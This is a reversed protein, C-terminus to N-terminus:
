EGTVGPEKWLYRTEDTMQLLSGIGDFNGSELMTASFALPLSTISCIQKIYESSRILTDPETAEGINSNNVIATVRLRSASEIDSLLMAADEASSTLPRYMSVVYLMEYGSEIIQPSFMGLPTAGLDDGGVDFIALAGPNEDKFVSYIEPPLTPMDINTNAYEPIITKIGARELSIRNDAARFYPNVTDFDILTIKGGSKAFRKALNVAINTKGSGFHGTIILLKKSPQWNFRMTKM